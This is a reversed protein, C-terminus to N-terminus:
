GTKDLVARVKSTLSKPTFPKEVFEVGRALIGHNVIADNTYGSMFIVKVHPHTKEVLDALERGSMKPMVVDTLILDISGEHGENIRLANEGNEAELVRYGYKKLSTRALKRVSDDDEVILVTESGGLGKTFRQDESEPAVSGKTKPLYVKFTSGQMLETYVWIYGENQKVIGYITSLGLGTGKDSEKSKFFPEFIREQTERDMGIGNDSIALMVYSGVQGKVGHKRFFDKGLEVNATEITLKGGEPMADKANVVLNMVIQEIQGPDVEVLWLGPAAIISMEIDERILRSIMKGMDTLVENIDLVKPMILQKSSFALLQRTLDAAREGARKIDEIDEFLPDEELLSALVLDCNGIITTLINNFDHAVGGALTGIAEMKQSQFLQAQLADRDKEAQKHQTIDTVIGDIEQFVGEKFYSKKSDRVWHVSGDKATIRYEHILESPMQMLDLSERYYTSRDDPHILEIWNVKNSRFEDVTYGSVSESNSIVETAWDSKGRYVMGLVNSILTRYKEESEALTDNTEKREVAVAFLKALHSVVELDSDSFGEKSNALAVQGVLGDGVLAPVSLFNKIPIHGPPLGGSSEHSEPDNTYFARQTNLAHGWLMPYQGDPNLPFISRKGKGSILCEKGMMETITYGINAGTKKDIVSVYGHESGTLLRAYKLTVDTIDSLADSIGVLHSSMKALARNIKLGRHLLEEEQKRVTINRANIVIGKRENNPGLIPYYRIELYRKRGEPSVVWREHFVNEGELCKEANPRVVNEFVEEGFVDSMSNDIIQDRTLGFARAYADNAALYVFNEDILALMDTSCSVIKEYQRLREETQKRKRELRDRQLRAGLLPAIAWGITELLAVDEETYDMQKNAVQFFGIVEGQHIVAVGIHRRIAVRAEPIITSPENNYNSKKERIPRFWSSDGWTERPFFIAKDPAESEKRIHQATSPVVYDGNEDIYGFVGYGSAMLELVVKLVENYMEDDPVTLFVRAIENRIKLEREARKHETIDNGSSLHGIIDGEENRLLTNQWLIVREEGSSTVVPNEYHETLETGESLLSESVAKVEDTLREPLFTDFWNKGVVEEEEYGLVECGKRNILTVEGGTNVAVFIVGALDLYAQALNKERELAQKVRKSETIDRMVSLLGLSEGREDRLLSVTNETFLIEGNKRKAECEFEVTGRKDFAEKLREQFALYHEQDVHLVQTSLGEVEAKSYGFINEAAPNMNMLGGDPTLVFVAEALTNFIAEMSVQSDHLAKNRRECESINEELNSVRNLLEEYSPKEAM